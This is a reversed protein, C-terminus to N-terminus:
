HDNLMAKPKFTAAIKDLSISHTQCRLQAPAFRFRTRDSDNESKLAREDVVELKM